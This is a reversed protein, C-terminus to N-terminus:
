KMILCREDKIFIHSQQSLTQSHSAPVKVIWNNGDTSLRQLKICGWAEELLQSRVAMKIDRQEADDPVHNIIFTKWETVNPRNIFKRKQLENYISEICRFEKELQEAAKKIKKAHEPEPRTHIDISSLVVNVVDIAISAAVFVTTAIVVPVARGAAAAGKTALGVTLRGAQVGIDMMSMMGLVLRDIQMACELVIRNHYRLLCVVIVFTMIVPAVVIGFSEMINSSKFMKGICLKLAQKFRNVFSGVRLNMAHVDHFDQLDQSMEKLLSYSVLFEIAKKLNETHIFWPAMTSFSAEEQMVLTKAEELNNKLLVIETGTTGVVVGGGLASAVGGGIALPLTIPALPTLFSLGVAVGGVAGVVGGVVKAIDSNFKDTQIEEAIEKLRQINSKRFSSWHGFNKVFADKAKKSIKFLEVVREFKEVASEIRIDFSSESDADDGDDSEDDPIIKDKHIEDCAVDYVLEALYRESDNFISEDDNRNSGFFREFLIEERNM